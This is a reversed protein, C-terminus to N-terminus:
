RSRPARGKPMLSYPEGSPMPAGDLIWKRLTEADKKSIAHGTPPMAGPQNDALVVVQYFRSSEPHGPIIWTRSAILKSLAATDSFSPMHTLRNEGHCHVCNKEIVPRVKAFAAADVKAPPAAPPAPTSCANILVLGTAGTLGCLRRKWNPLNLKMYSLMTWCKRVALCNGAWLGGVRRGLEQRCARAGSQGM